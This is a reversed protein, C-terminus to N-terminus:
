IFNSYLIVTFAAHEAECVAKVFAIALLGWRRTPDLYETERENEREREQGM